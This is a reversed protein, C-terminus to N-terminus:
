ATSQIGARRRPIGGLRLIVPLRLRAFNPRKWRAMAPAELHGFELRL